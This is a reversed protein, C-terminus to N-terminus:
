AEVDCRLGDVWRGSEVASGDGGMVATPVGAGAGEEGTAGEARARKDLSSRQRGM